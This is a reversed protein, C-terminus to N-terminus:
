IASVMTYDGNKPIILRTNHEIFRILEEYAKIYGASAGQQDSDYVWVEGLIDDFGKQMLNKGLLAYEEPTLKSQAYDLINSLSEKYKGFASYRHGNIVRESYFARQDIARRFQGMYDVSALRQYTPETSKIIDILKQETQNNKALEEPTMSSLDTEDIKALLDKAKSREKIDSIDRTLKISKKANSVSPLMGSAANMKQQIEALADAIKTEQKVSERMTNHRKHKLAGKIYSNKGTNDENFTQKVNDNFRDVLLNYTKDNLSAKVDRVTPARKALSDVVRTLAKQEQWSLKNFVSVSPLLGNIQKKSYISTPADDFGGLPKVISSVDFGIDNIASLRRNFTARAKTYEDTREVQKPLKYGM